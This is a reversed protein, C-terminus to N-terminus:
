WRRRVGLRLWLREYLTDLDQWGVEATLEHRANLTLVGALAVMTSRVRLVQGFGLSEVEDGVGAALSLHGTEFYRTLQLAHSIGTAGDLRSAYLRYAAQYTQWYHEAGLVGLTVEPGDYVLRRLGLSVITPKGVHRAVNAGVMSRALVDAEPAWAAEAGATWRPSFTWNFSGSLEADHADYREASRVGATWQARGSGGVGGLAIEAWDEADGSLESLEGSAVIMSRAASSAVSHWSAQPFRARAAEILEDRERETERGEVQELAALQLRWADENDPALRRATAFQEAARAPEASNLLALGYGYHVDADEPAVAVLQSFEAAAPGPEGGRLLAQARLWRMEFDAPHRALFEAATAATVAYEGRQMAQEACTRDNGADCDSAAAAGTM